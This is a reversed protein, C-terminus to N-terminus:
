SVERSLSSHTSGRASVQGLAAALLGEQSAEGPGFEASIRGDRMVLIRDSMGLIEPLESSIMVIGAGAETLRNMLEYIEVKAAVDIGRTPEDFIMVDSERTLWKGLVVKQQNGGSLHGVPHKIGPTKIRLDSVARDAARVESAARVFGWRSLREQSPLAINAQLSLPLVLGQRKRDETLLAVGRRISAAPSKFRVREGLVRIEGGTVPDAGFVARAVATRGAGMLGAVGLIEGRRLTFSIDSFRGPSELREVRLLEEGVSGRRRPFHDALERGAMMRVLEDANVDAMACTQVRKGDRLVTVRDGVRFLEELRHSIYVIGVGRAKLKRITAFLGEIESETLASTPEDMILIRASFSLARAVEVMQQEAVTLSDVVDSADFGVAFERLIARSEELLRSRNIVGRFFEPERGLFINEAVSLHPVLNFEQHITSIGLDLSRRPNKLDEVRGDISVEGGDRSYAGGLIKMLTSKGAGNEGLLVHVEGPRLDFDVRDLALVGPFRKSIGRMELIPSTPTTSSNMLDRVTVTVPVNM